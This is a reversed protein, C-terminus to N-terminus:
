TRERTHKLPTPAQAQAMQVGDPDLFQISEVDVDTLNVKAVRQLEGIDWNILIERNSTELISLTTNIKEDLTQNFTQRTLASIVVCLIVLSFLCILNIPLVLRNGVIQLFFNKLSNILRVMKM